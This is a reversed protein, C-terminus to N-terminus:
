FAGRGNQTQKVHVKALFLFSFSPSIGVNVLAPSLWGFGCILIGANVVREMWGGGGRETWKIESTVQVDCMAPGLGDKVFRQLPQLSSM